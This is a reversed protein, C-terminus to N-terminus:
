VKGRGKLSSNLEIGIGMRSHYYRSGIPRLRSLRLITTASRCESSEAEYEEEKFGKM